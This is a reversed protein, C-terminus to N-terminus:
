ITYKRENVGDLHSLMVYAVSYYILHNIFDFNTLSGLIGNAEQKTKTSWKGGALDCGDEHHLGHAIVELAYVM